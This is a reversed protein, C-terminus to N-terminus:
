PNQYQPLQVMRQIGIMTAYPGSRQVYNVAWAPSFADAGGPDIYGQAELRTKQGGIPTFVVTMDMALVRIYKPSEPVYKPVAQTTFRMFGRQPTYPEIIKRVVVDREPLGVPSNYILYYYVENASVKKLLKSDLVKFYWRNYNDYDDHVRAVVDLPADIVAEVKFSRVRKGHERKIYAKIDRRNDRKVLEWEDSQVRLDDLDSEDVAAYAPSLPILIVFSLALIKKIMM